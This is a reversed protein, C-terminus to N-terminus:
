EMPIYLINSSNSTQSDTVNVQVQIVQNKKAKKCYILGTYHVKQGPALTTILPNSYTVRKDQDTAITITVNEVVSNSRNKIYTEIQCTEGKSITGNGDADMYTLESVSLYSGTNIYSSSEPYDAGGGMQFDSQTNQNSSYNYSDYSEQSNDSYQVKSKNEIINSIGVGVAAGVGMGILSGLAQNRGVYGRKSTLLGISRGIDSGISAGTVGASFQNYSGCSSILMLLAMTSSIIKVKKM